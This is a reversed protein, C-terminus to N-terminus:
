DIINTKYLEELKVDLFKETNYSITSIPKQTLSM